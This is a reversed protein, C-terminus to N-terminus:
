LPVAWAELQNLTPDNAAITASIGSTLAWASIRTQGSARDISGALLTAQQAGSTAVLTVRAQRHLTDGVAAAAGTTNYRVHTDVTGQVAGANSYNICFLYRVRYAVGPDPLLISAQATEAGTLTGGAVTARQESLEHASRNVWAGAVRQWLTNTDVTVALAGNALGPWNAGTSAADLTPKDAFVHVAGRTVDKAWQSTLPSANPVNLYQGIRIEAV